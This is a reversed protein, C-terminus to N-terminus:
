TISASVQTSQPAQSAAHGVPAILSASYDPYCMVFFAPAAADANKQILGAAHEEGEPSDERWHVLFMLPEFAALTIFCSAQYMIMLRMPQPPCFHLYILIHSNGFDQIYIRHDAVNKGSVTHATEKATGSDILGQFLGATNVSDGRILYIKHDRLDIIKDASRFGSCFGASRGLTLM